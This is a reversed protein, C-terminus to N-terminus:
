ILQDLVQNLRISGNWKKLADGNEDVQILTHQITVGYKKKLETASDYDVKLITVDEPLSTLNENINKDLANCTTCWNAKFFIVTKGTEATSLLGPEYDTYLGGIAKPEEVPIVITGDLVHDAPAPDDDRPELTLVYRTFSTLDNNTTYTNIYSGDEQLVAEGTSVVSDGVLWGEYFFGDTLEPLDNLTAVVTYEGDLLSVEVNGTAEQKTDFGLIPGTTVDELNAEETVTRMQRKQTESLPETTSTDVTTTDSNEPKNLNTFIFFGAVVLILIIIINKNM